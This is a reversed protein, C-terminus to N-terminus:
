QLWGRGVCQVSTLVHKQPWPQNASSSFRCILMVLDGGPGLSHWPLLWLASHGAVVELAGACLEFGPLRRGRAERIGWFACSLQPTKEPWLCARVPYNAELSSFSIVVMRAAWSHWVELGRQGQPLSNWEWLRVQQMNLPPILMERISWGQELCERLSEMMPICAFHLVEWCLGM